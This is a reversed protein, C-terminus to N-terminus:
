AIVRRKTAILFADIMNRAGLRRLGGTLHCAVTKEDRGMSLVVQKKSKGEARMMPVKLRAESLSPQDPEDDELAECGNAQTRIVRAGSLGRAM